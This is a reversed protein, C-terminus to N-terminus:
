REVYSMLVVFVDAVCTCFIYISVDLYEPPIGGRSTSGNGSSDSHLTSIRAAFSIRPHGVESRALIPPPGAPQSASTGDSGDLCAEDPEPRSLYDDEKLHIYKLEISSM